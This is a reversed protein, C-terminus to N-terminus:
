HHRIFCFPTIPTPSQNWSLQAQNTIKGGSKPHQHLLYMTYYQPLRTQLTALRFTKAKGLEIATIVRLQKLREREKALFVFLLLM